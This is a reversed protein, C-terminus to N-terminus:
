YEEDIIKKCYDIYEKCKSKDCGCSLLIDEDTYINEWDINPIYKYTRKISIQRTIQTRHLIFRLLPRKMAAKLNEAAKVSNLIIVWHAPKISYLYEFLNDYGEIIQGTKSTMYKSNQNGNVINTILFIKDHYEKYIPELSKKITKIRWANFQETTLYIKNYKYGHGDNGCCYMILHEDKLLCRGIEEEIDNIFPKYQTIDNTNEIRGDIYEILANDSISDFVYIGNNYTGVDLFENSKIEKVYSLKKIFKNQYKKFPKLDNNILNFPMIVIMNNNYLDYLKDIFKLQITDCGVKGYPPNVLIIDYRKGNNM